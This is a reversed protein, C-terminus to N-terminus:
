QSQSVLKRLGSPPERVGGLWWCVGKEWAFALREAKARTLGGDYEMIAAREEAADWATLAALHTATAEELTPRQAKLAASTAYVAELAAWDIKSPM